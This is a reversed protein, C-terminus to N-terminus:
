FAPLQPPPCNIVNTGSSDAFWKARLYTQISQVQQCSLQKDYFIMEGIQGDLVAGARGTGARITLGLQFSKPNGLSPCNSAYTSSSAIDIAALDLNPNCSGATFAVGGTLMTTSGSFISGITNSQGTYDGLADTRQIYFIGNATGASRGVEYVRQICPLSGICNLEPTIVGDMRALTANDGSKNTGQSVIFVTGAAAQNLLVFPITQMSKGTGGMGRDYPFQVMGLNNQQATRYTPESGPTALLNRGNGSIDDWISVPDGNNAQTPNGTSTYTVVLSAVRRDAFRSGNGATRQLLLGVYDTAPNFSPQNLTAQVLASIDPSRQPVGSQGIVPWAPVNWSVNPGLVPQNRLQNTAPPPSFQGSAPVASHALVDMKVTDSGPSTIGAATFQVYAKTIVANKPIPTVKFFMGGYATSTFDSDYGLVLQNSNWSNNNQTGDSIREDMRSFTTTNNDTWTSTQTGLQHVTPNDSADYWAIPSFRDPTVSPANVSIASRISSSTYAATSQPPYYIRGISEIRKMFGDASTSIVTVTFTVKYKANSTITQESTGNYSGTSTFQEQAYDAGSKAATQTIQKFMGVLLDQQNNIIIQAIALSMIFITASIIIVSPLMFGIQQEAQHVQLKPKKPVESAGATSTGLACSAVRLHRFLRFKM